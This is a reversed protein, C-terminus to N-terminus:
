RSGPHNRGASTRICTGKFARRRPASKKALWRARSLGVTFEKRAFSGIKLQRLAKKRQSRVQKMQFRDQNLQFLDQNTQVLNQKMQFQVAKSQGRRQKWSCLSLKERRRDQDDLSLVRKTFILDLDDRRPAKTEEFQSQETVFHVTKM